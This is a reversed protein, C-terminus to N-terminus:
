LLLRENLAERTTLRGHLLIGGGIFFLLLLSFVCFTALCFSFTWDGIRNFPELSIELEPIYARFCCNEFM